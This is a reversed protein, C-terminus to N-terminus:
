ANGFDLGRFRYVQVCRSRWSATYEHEAVVNASQFAHLMKGEGAFFGVHQEAGALNFLLVDGTEPEDDVPDCWRELEKRMYGNPMIPSYDRNEYSFGFVERLVCIVLGCCDVGTSSRGTHFFPVGLWKRAETIIDNGNAM